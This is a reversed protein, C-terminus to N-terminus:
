PGFQFSKRYIQQIQLIFLNQGEIRYGRSPAVRFDGGAMPLRFQLLAGSRMGAATHPCAWFFRFLFSECRFPFLFM